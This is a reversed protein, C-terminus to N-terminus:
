HVSEQRAGTRNVAGGATKRELARYRQWLQAGTIALTRVAAEKMDGTMAAGATGVSQRREM